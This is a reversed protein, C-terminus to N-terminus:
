ALEDEDFDDLAAERRSARVAGERVAAIVREPQTAALTTACHWVRGDAACWLLGEGRLEQLCEARAERLEIEIAAPTAVALAVATGAVLGVGEERAVAPTTGRFELWGPACPQGLPRSANCLAVLDERSPVGGVLLVWRQGPALELRVTGGRQLDNAKLALPVPASHPRQRADLFEAYRELAPVFRNIATVMGALSRVGTVFYQLALLYAILATVSGGGLLTSRGKTALVVGVILAGAVASVLQSKDIALRRAFFGDQATRYAAGAVHDARRMASDRRPQLAIERLLQQRERVWEASREDQARTLRVTDLNIRYLAVGALVLIALVGTTTLPDLRVLAILALLAQAVPVVAGFVRRVFMACGRPLSALLRNAARGGALENLRPQAPLPLAVALELLCSYVHREYRAIAAFLARQGGYHLAAAGLLLLAVVGAFALLPLHGLPHGFVMVTDGVRGAQSEVNRMLLLVLALVGLQAALGALGMALAQPLAWGLAARADGLVQGTAALYAAIRLHQREGLGRLRGWRASAPASM